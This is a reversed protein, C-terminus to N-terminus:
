QVPKSVPNDGVISRNLWLGVAVLLWSVAGVLNHLMFANIYNDKVVNVLYDTSLNVFFTGAAFILFATNIWFMPLKTISETPLERILAYFYVLALVLKIIAAFSSTYSNIGTPGQIFFLNVLSFLLYVVIIAVFSNGVQVSKIKSRYFLLLLPLTVINNLSYALNMNISMLVGGTFGCLDAILSLLLILGLLLYERRAAAPNLMYVLLGLLFAFDQALGIVTLWTTDLPINSNDMIVTLHAHTDVM